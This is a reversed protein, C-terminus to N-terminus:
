LEDAYAVLRAALEHPCALMPSHGSDIEDLDLQLRERAIRRQFELPFFRDRSGALARTPVDPWADIALPSGFIGDGPPGVHKASGAALAPDVDNLFIAIQAGADWSQM